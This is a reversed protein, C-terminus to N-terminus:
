TSPHSRHGVEGIRVIQIREDGHHLAAAERAGRLPNMPSLRRHAHLYLTQFARDAFLKELTQTTRDAEGPFSLDQEIVRAADEAHIPLRHGREVTGRQLTLDRDTQGVVVDDAEQGFYQSPEDRQVRGTEQM